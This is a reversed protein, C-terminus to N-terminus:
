HAVLLAYVADALDGDLGETGDDGLVMEGM